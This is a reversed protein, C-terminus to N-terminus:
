VGEGRCCGIESWELVVVGLRNGLMTVYISLGFSIESDLKNCPDSFLAQQRHDIPESPACPIKWPSYLNEGEWRLGEQM